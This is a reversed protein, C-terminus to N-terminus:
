CLFIETMGPGRRQLPSPHKYIDGTIWLHYRHGFLTLSLRWNLFKITARGAFYNPDSVRERESERFCVLPDRVPVVVSLDVESASKSRFPRTENNEM